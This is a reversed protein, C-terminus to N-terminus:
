EIEHDLLEQESKLLFSYRLATLLKKIIQYLRQTFIILESLMEDNTQHEALHKLLGKLVQLRIYKLQHLANTIHQVPQADDHDSIHHMEKLINKLEEGLEQQLEPLNSPLHITDSQLAVDTRDILQLVQYCQRVSLECQDLVEM